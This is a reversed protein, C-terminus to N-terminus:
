TEVENYAAGPPLMAVCKTCLANTYRKRSTGNAVSEWSEEDLVRRRGLVPPRTRGCIARFEVYIDPQVVAPFVQVAHLKTGGFFAYITPLPQGDDLIADIADCRAYYEETRIRLDHVEELMDEWEDRWDDEDATAIAHSLADELADLDTLEGYVRFARSM